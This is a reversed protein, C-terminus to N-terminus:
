KLKDNFSGMQPVSFESILATSTLRKQEEQGIIAYYGVDQLMGVADGIYVDVEDYTVDGSAPVFKRLTVYQPIIAPHWDFQEIRCMNILFPTAGVFNNPWDNTLRNGTEDIVLLAQTYIEPSEQLVWNRKTASTNVYTYIRADSIWESAVTDLTMYVPASPDALHFVPGIDGNPTNLTEYEVTYSDVATAPTVSYTLRTADMTREPTVDGDQFTIFRKMEYASYKNIDNLTAGSAGAGTPSVYQLKIRQAAATNPKSVYISSLPHSTRPKSVLYGQPIDDTTFAEEITYPDSFNPELGTGQYVHGLMNANMIQALVVEDYSPYVTYDTPMSSVKLVGADTFAKLTDGSMINFDESALIPDLLQRTWNVLDAYKLKNGKPRWFTMFKLPWKVDQGSPNTPESYVFFGEPTYMYLQAKDNNSDAYYGSCMWAHRIFYSMTAPVCMSQARVAFANILYNLNALNGYIDDYDVGMAAVLATPYYKNTVSSLRMVGYLRQLFSLYTYVSDMAIYYKMLDISDYNKAGSNAHRVFSYINRAAVNIPSYADVSYGVSPVFHLAMVGPISGADITAAGTDLQNGVPWSYPFSATAKLLQPNQAYWMPDNSSSRKYSKGRKSSLEGARKGKAYEQVEAEDQFNDSRKSSRGKYSGKKSKPM